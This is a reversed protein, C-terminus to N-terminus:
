PKDDAPEEDPAEVSAATEAPMAAAQERALALNRRIGDNRLEEPIQELLKLAEDPHGIELLCSALNNFPEIRHPYRNAALNFCEIAEDFRGDGAYLIGLNNIVYMRNPNDIRAQELCEIAEPLHGLRMHAMGELFAVPSVLPDLTKWPTRARRAAALMEEWKGERWARRALIVDKEQQIAALSYTIGLGLAAVLLPVVVLRGLRSPQALHDADDGSTSGAAPAIGHKVVTVVALLLSLYVQHNIRELPFDFCSLTSYSVLGVLGVLALWRDALPGNSRLITRIAAFAAVFCGVFLLIGLVGKEVFVWLFDNHPQVWNTHVNSFDLDDDGFYEHLRVTFNGAGVGTLLHDAIMQSTVGWIMLRGGERPLAAPDAPAVFISRFRQAFVNDAPATAIGGALAVLGALCIAALGNRVRQSMNFRAPHVLLVSVGAAIGALVALWAARSQLLLIMLLVAVAAVAALGRWGRRLLVVGGICWPLFLALIGAYLNVSSMLATIQEMARRDMARRDMAGRGHLGVGLTTVIEYCGVGVSILGAVIVVRLLLEQWRPVIPLLLCFLCITLFTALTRFLDTFGASVNVAVLLSGCTVLLYAAFLPIVPERLVSFDLLRSVPPLSVVVVSVLLFALLALLRPILSVDIAANDVLCNLAVLMFGFFTLFVAYRLFPAVAATPGGPPSTAPNSNM